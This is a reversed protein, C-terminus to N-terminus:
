SAEVLRTLKDLQGMQKMISEYTEKVFGEGHHEPAEIVEDSGKFTSPIKQAAEVDVDETRPGEGHHEPAEIVEDSGKFHALIKQAAEVDLKGQKHGFRLKSIVQDRYTIKKRLNRMERRLDGMAKTKFKIKKLLAARSLPKTMIATTTFTLKKLLTASIIDARSHGGALARAM